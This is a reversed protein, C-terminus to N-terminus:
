SGARTGKSRAGDGGGRATTRRPAGEIEGVKVDLERVQARLKGLDRQLRSVDTRAPLNWFHLVARAQRQFLGFVFNQTRFTVVLLDNFRRTAVARELPRGVAREARDFARRWLPRGSMPPLTGTTRYTHSALPYEADSALV